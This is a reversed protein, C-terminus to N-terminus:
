LDTSEGFTIGEWCCDAENLEDLFSKETGGLNSPQLILSPSGHSMQWLDEEKTRRLKRAREYVGAFSYDRSRYSNLMKRTRSQGDKLKSVLNKLNDLEEQLHDLRDCRPSPPPSDDSSFCDSSCEDIRGYDHDITSSTSDLSHSLEHVDVSEIVPPPSDETIMMECDPEDQNTILIVPPPEQAPFQLSPVEVEMREDAALRASESFMTREVRPGMKDRSSQRKPVAKLKAFSQRGIVPSEKKGAKRKKLQEKKLLLENQAAAEKRALSERRLLAEKQDALKKRYLQDEDVTVRRRRPKAKREVTENGPDFLQLLKKVNKSKKLSGM